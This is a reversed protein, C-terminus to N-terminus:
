SPTSKKWPPLSKPWDSNKRALSPRTGGGEGPNKQSQQHLLQERALGEHILNLWIEGEQRATEPLQMKLYDAQAEAALAQSRAPEQPWTCCPWAVCPKRGKRGRHGRSEPQDLGTQHNRRSNRGGWPLRPSPPNRRLPCGVARTAQAAPAPGERPPLAQTGLFQCGSVALLLLLALPHLRLRTM